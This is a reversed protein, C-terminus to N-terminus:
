LMGYVDQCNCKTIYHNLAFSTLLNISEDSPNGKLLDAAADSLEKTVELTVDRTLSPYYFGDLDFSGLSFTIMNPILEGCLEVIKTTLITGKEPMITPDKLDKWLSKLTLTWDKWNEYISM